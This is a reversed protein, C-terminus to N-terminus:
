KEAAKTEFKKGTVIGTVEEVSRWGCIRIADLVNQRGFFKVAERYPKEIDFGHERAKAVDKRILAEEVDELERKPIFDDSRLILQATELAGKIVQRKVKLPELVGRELMNAIDGNLVDFGHYRKGNAHARRLELLISIHDFGSNKALIEPIAELSKVFALMSLQLKTSESLALKRLQQAVEVEVAGGGPLVAENYANVVARVADHITRYTEDVVQKTGGRVLITVVGTNRADTASADNYGIFIFNFDGIKREEAIEACGLDSETATAANLIIKGHTLKSVKELTKLKINRLAMIGNEAFYHMAASSIEKRCLVVNVGLDRLHKVIDKLASFSYRSRELKELEEPSSLEVEIALEGLTGVPPGINTGILAIKPNEVKSPMNPLVVKAEVLVGRLLQTDKISGGQVRELVINEANAKGDELTSLVAEVILEAFFEKYPALMKNNLASRAVSRLSREDRMVVALGEMIRISEKAAKKYGEIITTPHVGLDLLEVANKLLEGTLVVATTTGDGAEEDQTKALELLLGEVPHDVHTNEFITRGDRTVIIFNDEDVIIKHFGQPGLSSTVLSAYRYAVEINSLLIIRHIEKESKGLLPNEAMKWVKFRRTNLGSAARQMRVAAKNSFIGFM